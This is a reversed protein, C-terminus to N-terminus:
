LGPTYTVRVRGKIKAQNDNQVRVIWRTGKDLESDTVRHEIRLPSAGQRRAYTRAQGPHILSLMLPLKQPEPASMPDASWDAEVVIKGPAPVLFPIEQANSSGLLTFQTDILKRSSVPVTVRLKGAVERRSADASNIVKVTWSTRGRGIFSDIEQGSARYEIRLPAPGGKRAAESGDPRILVLNLAVSVSGAGAATWTGEILIRGPSLTNFRTSFESRIDASLAFRTELIRTDAPAKIALGLTVLATLLTTIAIRKLVGKM